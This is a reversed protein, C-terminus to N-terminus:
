GVKILIGAEILERISKDFMYQVGGGPQDFWPAIEGSLVEVPKLVAYVNYPKTESGPALSRMEYPVGEPCVFTGYESGYRDIRTGPQLILKLAEGEFGDNAPWIINGERDTWKTIKVYKVDVGLAQSVFSLPIMITDAKIEPATDILTQGGNVLAVRDGIQLQIRKEPDLTSIMIYPDDVKVSAGLAQSVFDVSVLTRSNVIYPQRGAFDFAAGNVKVTIAAADDLVEVTTTKLNASNAADTTIQSGAPISDVAGLAFGSGFVQFLVMLTLLIFISSKYKM